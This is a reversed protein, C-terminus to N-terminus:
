LGRMCYLFSNTVWLFHGYSMAALACHSILCLWVPKLSMLVDVHRHARTCMYACVHVCLAFFLSGRPCSELDM